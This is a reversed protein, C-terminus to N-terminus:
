VHKLKESFIHLLLKVQISSYFSQHALVPNKLQSILNTMFKIILLRTGILKEKEAMIALMHFLNNKLIYEM